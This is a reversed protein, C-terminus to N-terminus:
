VACSELFGSRLLTRVPNKREPGQLGRYSTADSLELPRPHLSGCGIGFHRLDDNRM